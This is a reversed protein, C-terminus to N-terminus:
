SQRARAYEGPLQSVEVQAGWLTSILRRAGDPEGTTWFRQAGGSDAGALVGGEELRRRLEKAIAPGPDTITVGPGACETIVGALFTYHTCGLVITSVGRALLPALNARVLERTRDSDLEGREVQEVLGSCPQVVIERKEGFRELLDAFKVSSLTGPTAMVGIVGSESGRVAPKVAPEIGIIPINFHARLKAIAAATATNCAVVVAKAGQEQLFGAITFARDEIFHEPQEGYPAYSSDAVYFLDEGPLERRIERLISLGGVGSDFVGVPRKAGTNAASINAASVDAM